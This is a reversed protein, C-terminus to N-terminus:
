LLGVGFSTNPYFGADFSIYVNARCSTTISAIYTQKRWLHFINTVLSNHQDCTSYRPWLHFIPTNTKLKVTTCHSVLISAPFVRCQGLYNLQVSSSVWDFTLIVPCWSSSAGHSSHICLFYFQLQLLVLKYWYPWQHRVAITYSSAMCHRLCSTYLFYNSIFAWCCLFYKYYVNEWTGNYLITSSNNSDKM